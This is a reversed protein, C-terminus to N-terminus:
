LRKGLEFWVAPARIERERLFGDILQDNSMDPFILVNQNDERTLRDEEWGKKNERSRVKQIGRSSEKTNLHVPEPTRDEM